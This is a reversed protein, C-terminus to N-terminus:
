GSLAAAELNLAAGREELLGEERFSVYQRGARVGPRAVIVHDIVAIGVIDGAEKLQRTCTIDQPSPTPDGSPHNHVLVIRSCGERIATRFVERAHVHSRDVLGLTICEDRMLCHKTNLLLAHFEEQMAGRFHERFLGMVDGPGSVKCAEPIGQVALRKALAFAARLEVAKAVGIGRIARLEGITASSLRGLDGRFAALVDRSLSLVSRGRVGNRLVLAVLEADSLADAGHRMMRERPREREPLEAILHVGSHHCREGDHAM